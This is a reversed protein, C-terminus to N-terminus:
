NPTPLDVSDIVLADVPGRESELKLGLQEPLATSLSLGERPKGFADAPIGLGVPIQPETELELDWTGTLGTKDIVVRGARPQLLKAIASMPQGEAIMTQSGGGVLVRLGCSPPDGPQPPGVPMKYDPGRAAVIAPCDVASQKLRPGLRRDSRALVLAYRPLDRTELHTKLNFREALLRRVMMRMQDASVIGAAKADIDFRRTRVWDPGGQIQFESMQYAYVLILSLTINPRTFRDPAQPMTSVGHSEKISAAEFDLTDAADQAHLTPIAFVALCSLAVLSNQAM